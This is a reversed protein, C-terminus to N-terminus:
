EIIGYYTFMADIMLIMEKHLRLVERPNMYAVCYHLATTHM